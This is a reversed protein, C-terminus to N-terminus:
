VTELSFVDYEELYLRAFFTLSEGTKVDQIEEFEVLVTNQDQDQDLMMKCGGGYHKEIVSLASDLTDSVGIVEFEDTEARRGPNEFMQSSCEEQTIVITKM